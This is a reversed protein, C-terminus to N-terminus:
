GNEAPPTEPPRSAHKVAVHAPSAVGGFADHRYIRVDKFDRAISSLQLSQEM